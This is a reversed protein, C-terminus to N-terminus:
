ECITTTVELSDIIHRNTSGGTGATFGVYAPFGFNGSLDEDLYITGDISVTVHPALVEVEMTHWGNDEMEPLSAWAAPDDVDGDFTFMVHDNGTPDQGDNFYTDVEISWGPLAPGNTCAADGGYGIGCGTGGLYTSMRNTDLATLSIGDAGSGDGIYFSFRITVADGSVSQTTQFATGVQNTQAETLILYGNSSDWGAAGEFHWSSIDLEDEVYGGNACVHVAAEAGNGCSDTTYAVIEHEGPSRGTAWTGTAIGGSSLESAILGDVDSVWAVSLEEDLDDLVEAHLSLATTPDLIDGDIPSLMELTPAEDPSASLPVVLEPDEPDNSSVLLEGSSEIPGWVVIRQTGGPELTLPLDLEEVAWPETATLESVVLDAGGLNELLVTEELEDCAAGHLSAPDVELEPLAGAVADTRPNLEYDQCALALLLM